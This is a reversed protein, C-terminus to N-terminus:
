RRRGEECLADIDVKELVGFAEGAVCTLRRRTYPLGDVLLVAEGGDGVDVRRARGRFSSGTEGREVTEAHRAQRASWSTTSPAITLLLENPAQRSWFIPSILDAELLPDEVTDDRTLAQRRRSREFRHGSKKNCRCSEVGRDRNVDAVVIEVLLGAFPHARRRVSSSAEASVRTEKRLSGVELAEDSADPLMGLAKLVDVEGVDKEEAGEGLRTGLEKAREM